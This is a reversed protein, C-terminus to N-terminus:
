RRPRRCASRSRAARRRRRVRQLVQGVALALEELHQLLGLMRQDDDPLAGDRAGVARGNEAQRRLERLRDVGDRASQFPKATSCVAAARTPPRSMPKTGPSPPLSAAPMSPPVSTSNRSPASSSSRACPRRAGEDDIDARMAVGARVAGVDDQRGGGVGLLRAGVDVGFAAHLHGVAGAERRALGALVPRDQPRQRVHEALAATRNAPAVARCARHAFVRMEAADVLDRRAIGASM